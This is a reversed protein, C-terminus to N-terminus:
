EVVIVPKLFDDVLVFEFVPIRLNFFAASCVLELKVKSTSWAVRPIRRCTPDKRAVEEPCVRFEVRVNPRNTAHHEPFSFCVDFGHHPCEAFFTTTFVEPLSCPPSFITPLPLRVYTRWCRSAITHNRPEIHKKLKIMTSTIDSESKRLQLSLPELEFSQTNIPHGAIFFLLDFISVM